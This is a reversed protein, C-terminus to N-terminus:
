GFIKKVPRKIFRYYWRKYFPARVVAVEGLMARREDMKVVYYNNTTITTVLRDYGIYDFELTKADQPVTIQFKGNGDTSVATSNGQLRVTVGALPEGSDSVYGTLVRTQVPVPAAVVEGLTITKKGATSDSQQQAPKNQAQTKILPLMGTIFSAMALKKWWGAQQLSEAYLKHNLTNFQMADFRGCVHHTSSLYDIVQQDTMGSFDVVTKACSHCYRGRQQKDMNDWQEHCPQPISIHKIIHM